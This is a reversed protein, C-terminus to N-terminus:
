CNKAQEVKAVFEPDFAQKYDAIFQAAIAKVQQGYKAVLAETAQKCQLYLDYAQKFEAYNPDDSAVGLEGMVEGMEEVLAHSLYREIRKCCCTFDTSVTRKSLWREIHALTNQTADGRDMALSIIQGIKDRCEEMSSVRQHKLLFRGYDELLAVIASERIVAAQAATNTPQTEM